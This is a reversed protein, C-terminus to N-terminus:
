TREEKAAIATRLCSEFVGSQAARQEPSALARHLFSIEGDRVGLRVEFRFQRVLRRVTRKGWTESAEILSHNWAAQLAARLREEDYGRAVFYSVALGRQCREDPRAEFGGNM